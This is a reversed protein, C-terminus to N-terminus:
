VVNSVKISGAVESELKNKMRKSRFKIKRTNLPVIANVNSSKEINLDVCTLAIAMSAFLRLLTFFLIGFIIAFESYIFLKSNSLEPELFSFILFSDYIIGFILYCASGFAGIRFYYSKRCLIVATLIIIKTLLLCSIQTLYSDLFYGHILGCAFCRVGTTFTEEVFGSFIKYKDRIM